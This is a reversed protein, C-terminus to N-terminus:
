EVAGDTEPREGLRGTWDTEPREGLRGTWFWRSLMRAFRKEGMGAAVTKVLAETRASVPQQERVCIPILQRVLFELEDEYPDPIHSNVTILLDDVTADPTLILVTRVIERLRECSITDRSDIRYNYAARETGPPAQRGSYAWRGRGSADTEGLTQAIANTWRAGRELSEQHRLVADVIERLRSFAVGVDDGSREVLSAAEGSLFALNEITGELEAQDGALSEAVARFRENVLGIESSRNALVLFLSDLNGILARVDQESSALTQLGTASGKLAHALSESRGALAEDLNRVLSALPGNREGPAPELAALLGELQTLVDDLEAPITTRDLAIHDGDELTPGNEYPPHLQVYRDAIVTIPVVSLRADAPVRVGEGIELTLRVADGRPEVAVIDGVEVGRVMVRGAEFLNPAQEVDATVTYTAHEPRTLVYAGAAAAVVAITTLLSVIRSRM